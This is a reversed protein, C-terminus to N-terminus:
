PRVMMKLADWIGVGYMMSYAAVQLMITAICLAVFPGVVVSFWALANKMAQKRYSM